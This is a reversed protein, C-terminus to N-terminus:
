RYNSLFSFRVWLYYIEKKTSHPKVLLCLAGLEDLSSSLFVSLTKAPVHFYSAIRKHIHM